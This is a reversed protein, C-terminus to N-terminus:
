IRPIMALLGVELEPLVHGTLALELSVEAGSLHRHAQLLAVVAWRTVAMAQWYPILSRDIRSGETEYGALFDEAAAIGGADLQPNAFRWPPSLMWGIDELPDSWAAFEWDLVATLETGHVLYNGTRFDGHCLVPDVAPPARRELARLAWELVPEARGVADLHARYAEVRLLAVPRDPLPLFALDNRPPRVRHLRAMQAGLRRALAPGAALVAPDKTLRQGRAEGACRTMLYFRRGIVAPDACSFWPEPVAVGAQYAARLVAYEEMRGHSVALGSPADTRLVLEHEGARNGGELALDIAWNEQIAGGGLLRSREIRCARARTSEAIFRGLAQEDVM